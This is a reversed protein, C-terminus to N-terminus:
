QKIIKKVKVNKGNSIKLIYAGSSWSKIEINKSNTGIVSNFKNEYMLKGSFDFVKCEINSNNTTEYNITLSNSAPIPFVNEINFDDSKKYISIIKSMKKTGDLDIMALRYYNKTEIKANDLFQYFEKNNAKIEGIKEFTQNSVEEENGLSIGKFIEFHSFNKENATKWSILNGNNTAKGSFSILNVPLTTTTNAKVFFGSFGTTLFKIEWFQGNWIASIISNIESNSGAYSSPLGDNNPASTGAFKVVQINSIGTADTPNQPLKITNRANYEDFDAQSFYLTINGTATSPSSVPNIEYHRQVFTLLNIPEVWSKFTVNGAVPNGSSPEVKGLANCNIDTFITNTSVNQVVTIPVKALITPIVGKVWNSSNGTLTFNNLVGTFNGSNANNAIKNIGTNNDNATGHDFTYHLLLGAQQSPFSCMNAKLQAQNRVVSWIRVNDLSGNTFESSGQFAGLYLPNNIIPLPNNGTNRQAILEGDLYSKFGNTTNQQWTFAVHHWNGDTAAAGVPLGGSTGQDNSLIHLAPSSWGAVIFNNNVDQIRVASQINTGKFWYEVTIASGGSIIPNNSCNEAKVFDGSGDFHLANNSTIPSPAPNDKGEGKINIVFPNNTADNSAITLTANKIGASTPNFDIAFGSAGGAPISLGSHTSVNFQNADAGGLIINPAAPLILNVAGVNNIFYTKNLNGGDVCVSGFDTNNAISALGGNTIKVSNADAVEIIPLTNFIAYCFNDIDVINIPTVSIVELETLLVNDLPTGTFLINQQWGNTTNSAIAKTTTVTGGGFLTGTFTVNGATATTGNSSAWVDLSTLKFAKNPSSLVIKGISGVGSGTAILFGPSALTSGGNTTIKYRNTASFNIGYESFTTANQTENTFTECIKDDDLITGVGVQKLYLTGNTANSLNMNFTENSEILDDKLIPVTITQSLAGGNTFNLTTTPYATFDIGATASGGSSALDVSFATNNKTRTVTFTALNPVGLGTGELVNVDNISVQVASSESVGYKFNDIQLYTIPSPVSFSIASLNVNALPSGDFNVVFHGNNGTPTIAATHTVTGSGDFKTGTITVTCNTVTFTYNPGTGSVVASWLAVSTAYFSKGPSTIIFGGQNGSAYPETSFAYGTSGGAGFNGGVHVKLKGQTGFNNGSQSFTSANNVEDDFIEVNEDDDTITVIGTGTAIAGGVPNSLTMNFTENLEIGTDGNITVNVTQSTTGIPFNVTTLPFALYDTGATATGNSSQIQVSGASTGLSRNVQYSLISTGTNGEIISAPGIAFNNIVPAQTTFSIHDLGLLSTGELTNLNNDFITFTLSTFFLGDLATGSFNLGNVIGNTERPPMAASVSRVLIDASVMVGGGVPTGSVTVIGDIPINGGNDASTYAAFSNIKFGIGPNTATNLSITASTTQILGVRKIELFKASGAYGFSGNPYANPFNQLPFTTLFNIGSESFVANSNVATENEFDETATIQSYALNSMILTISLFAWVLIKLSFNKM